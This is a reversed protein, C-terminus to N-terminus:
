GGSSGQTGLEEFSGSSDFPSRIARRMGRRLIRRLIRRSLLRGLCLFAWSFWFFLGFFWRSFTMTRFFFSLALVLLSGLLVGRFLGAFDREVRRGGRDSYLGQTYFLSLFVLVIVVSALLYPGLPPIGLPVLVLGSHFRLWYTLLFAVVLMFADMIMYVTPEVIDGRQRDDAM